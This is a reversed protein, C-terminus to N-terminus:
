RIERFELTAGVAASVAGVRVAVITLVDQGTGLYNVSMPTRGTYGSPSAAGKNGGSGAYESFLVRGGSYASASVDGYVGSESDIQAFSAGTLTPNLVVEYYIPNDTVISINEPIVLERNIVGKFTGEVRISCLPIKTAAVTKTTAQNGFSFPFGPLDFIEKGGESKVTACIALSQASVNIPQRHRLFIGNNENGYGMESVTESGSNYIKWFVPLSPRQWYGNKRANDNYIEHVLVPIGNRVFGVRLRGVKLSQFDIALIQSYGWNITQANQKHLWSDQEWESESGGNRLVISTTGSGIQAYDMTGTIEILQSNGPTYPICIHSPFIANASGTTSEVSLVVDRTGTSYVISAGGLEIREMILPQHDNNFEVDFRNAPDSTRLRGFSDREWGDIGYTGIATGTALQTDPHSDDTLKTLQLLTTQGNYVGRETILGNNLEQYVGSGTIM